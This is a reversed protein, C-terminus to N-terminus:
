KKLNYVDIDLEEYAKLFQGKVSTPLNTFNNYDDFYRKSLESNKYTGFFVCYELFVKNLEEKCLSNILLSIYNKYLDDFSKNSLEKQKEEVLEEIKKKLEEFREEEFSDVTEQYNEQEELSADSGLEKPFPFEFEKLITDKINPMDLMVILKQLKEKELFEKDPIFALYEDSDKNFLKKRLVSSARLAKVRATNWDSDGVLRLYVKEEKIGDVGYITTEKNWSFLKSIDVDNKEASIM